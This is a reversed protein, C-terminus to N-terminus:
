LYSEWFDPRLYPNTTRERAMTTVPGHGPLLHTQDPLPAVQDRLTRAMTPLDGGPLDTRGISGAFVVDGTFAYSGPEDQWTVVVCGPRHGPAHHVTFELGAERLVEGGRLERVEAPETWDRGPDFAALVAPGIPGLGAAPDTLLERDAAHIYLPIRYRDCFPQASAVHDLHGHTALVAVPRLDHEALLTDLSGLADMGPDVVLCGAGPDAAVLYCNAQWPGAPFSELLVILLSDPLISRM